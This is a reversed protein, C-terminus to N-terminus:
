GPHSRARRVAEEFSRRREARAEDSSTPSFSRDRGVLAAAEEKSGLLGVGLAALLAAGRSTSEIDLPREVTLGTFDATFELLLDNKVAGGDVAIRVLPPAGEAALDDQMARVLADVQFAMAELTARAIHARTTGRTLGSLVGRADADWYPAGLGTLAPVFVVGDSSAVSRALPEIESASGLIGLGDRLWQVAAGSVFSSGELAYTVEGGIEWGMTTLLGHASPVPRDGTNLVLFAGTGFTCKARGAEVCGQGFLAAQQDGLVGTIPIGDPLGPVGRTVGFRHASPVIEPLMARPVGFLELLEPDYARTKLDMLLTRSANSVEISHPAAHGCLKQVLFSDITGFVIEGREAGRRLGADSELCFSLKTASFYPDLVLGTRERVLGEFGRERLERCREATRRDQWVLARGLVAGSTREWLVITERQNTVGIAALRERSAPVSDLAGAVASLVSEWIELPEHEVWGPRPFHQAFEVSARGLTQGDRTVVCATTGTTGQDIALILPESM